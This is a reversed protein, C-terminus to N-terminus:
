ALATKAWTAIGPMLPRADLGPVDQLIWHALAVAAIENPHFDEDPFPFFGDYGPVKDLDRRKPVGNEEVVQWGDATRRVEVGVAQFDEPMKPVPLDPFVVTPMIWGSGGIKELPFAWEIEPGDPNIANHAVLWPTAPAPVMRTFGLVQTILSEFLAPDARELVHTQEHLLLSRGRPTTALKGAASMERHMAAYTAIGAQPLVIHPGRTHPMGGEASDDLKIFSWPTRAYLPAREALLPQMRQIVGAIATREEDTFPLVAAAEFDRVAVRADALSKGALPSKMRARIDLLNMRDVYRDAADGALAAAGAEQSMFTIRALAATARTTAPTTTTQTAAETAARATGLLAGSAAGAALQLLQRRSANRLANM